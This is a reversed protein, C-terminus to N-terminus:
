VYCDVRFEVEISGSTEETEQEEDDRVVRGRPVERWLAPCPVPDDITDRRPRRKRRHSM